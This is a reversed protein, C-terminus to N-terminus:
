KDEDNATAEQSKAQTGKQRAEDEWKQAFKRVHDAGQQFGSDFAVSQMVAVFLSLAGVTFFAVTLVSLEPLLNDVFFLIIAVCFNILFIELFFNPPTRGCQGDPVPQRGFGLKRLLASVGFALVLFGLEAQSLFESNWGIGSDDM